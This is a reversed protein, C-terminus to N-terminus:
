TIFSAKLFFINGENDQMMIRELWVDISKLSLTIYILLDFVGAYIEETYSPYTCPNKM